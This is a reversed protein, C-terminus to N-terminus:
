NSSLSITVSIMCFPKYKCLFFVALLLRNSDSDESNYTFKTLFFAHAIFAYFINEKLFHLLETGYLTVNVVHNHIYVHLSNVSVNKLMLQTRQIDSTEQLCGHNEAHSYRESCESHLEPSFHILYLQKTSLSFDRKWWNGPWNGGAANEETEPTSLYVRLCRGQLLQLTSHKMECNMRAAESNNEEKPKPSCKM